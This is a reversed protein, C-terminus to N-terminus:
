LTQTRTRGDLCARRVQEQLHITLERDFTVKPRGVPLGSRAGNKQAHELGAVVRERIISRELEAMAAIVTFMAKGM